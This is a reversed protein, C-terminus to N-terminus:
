RISSISGDKRRQKNCQPKKEKKGESEKEQRQKEKGKEKEKVNRWFLKWKESESGHLCDKGFFNAKGQTKKKEIWQKGETKDYEEVPMLMCNPRNSRKFTEEMNIKGRLNAINWAKPEEEQETIM